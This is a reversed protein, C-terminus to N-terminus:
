EEKILVVRAPAAEVRRIKLPLAILKYEGEQIDKLQLGEIIMIGQGLLIKHTEHKPQDREIGLSDIGVGAIGIEKLYEAGSKELFIFQFDFEQAFSNKTKLLIFDGEVINKEQLSNRTVRDEVDTLDLVKCKRVFGEIDYCEMTDGGELMHLPADIHTGTHMGIEIISEHSSGTTHDSAVTIKPKKEEKNKYVMMDEQIEMSIDYIKM